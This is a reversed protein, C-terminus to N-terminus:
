RDHLDFHTQTHRLAEQSPPAPRPFQHFVLRFDAEACETPKPQRHFLSASSLSLSSRLILARWRRLTLMTTPKLNDSITRASSGVQVQLPTTPHVASTRILLSSATTAGVAQPSHPPLRLHCHHTHHSRQCLRPLIVFGTVITHSISHNDHRLHRHLHHLHHLHRHPPCPLPRSLATPFSSVEPLLRKVVLSTLSSSAKPLHVRCRSTATTDIAGQTTESSDTLTLRISRLRIAKTSNPGHRSQAM